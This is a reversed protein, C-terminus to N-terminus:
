PAAPYSQLHTTATHEWGGASFGGWLARGPRDGLSGTLTYWAFVETRATAPVLYAFACSTRYLSRGLKTAAQVSSALPAPSSSFSCTAPVHSPWAGRRDYSGYGVILMRRRGIRDARMTLYLRSSSMVSPTLTSGPRSPAGHARPWDPLFSSHGSLSRVRVFACMMPSSYFGDTVRYLRPALESSIPRPMRSSSNCTGLQNTVARVVVM